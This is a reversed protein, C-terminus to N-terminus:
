KAEWFDRLAANVEEPAELQPWHGTDLMNVKLDPVFPKTGQTHMEALSIPDKACTLLLVRHHLISQSEAMDALAEDIMKSIDLFRHPSHFTLSVRKMVIILTVRCLEIGISPRSMVETGVSAIMASVDIRFCIHASWDVHEPFVSVDETLYSGVTTKSDNKLWKELSGM